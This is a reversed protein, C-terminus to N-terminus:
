ASARLARARCRRCCRLRGRRRAAGGRRTNADHRAVVSARVDAPAHRAAGSTGRRSTGGGRDRPRPVGPVRRCAASSREPWRASVIAELVDEERPCETMHARGTSSRLSGADPEFCCRSSARPRSDSRRRSKKTLRGTRTPSGCCDRERPKLRRWRERCTSGRRRAIPRRPERNRDHIILTRGTDPLRDFRPRRYHDRVLNVAIRFLYHRRHAEDHIRAVPASFAITPKRCCITPSATTAPRERYIRGSRAPREITSRASPM